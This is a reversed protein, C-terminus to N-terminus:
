ERDDMLTEDIPQELMEPVLAPNGRREAPSQGRIVDDMKPPHKIMDLVEPSLQSVADEPRTKERPNPVKEQNM